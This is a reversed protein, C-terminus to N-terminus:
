QQFLRTREGEDLISEFWEVSHHVHYSIRTYIGPYGPRGCGYGSSVLGVVGIRGSDRIWLPAGADGMCADKGGGRVAACIQGDRIDDYSRRCERNSVVRLQVGRLVDSLDGDESTTGWGAVMVPSRPKLHDSNYKPIIPQVSHTFEAPHCLELIAIDNDFGSQGPYDPHVHIHCVKIHQEGYEDITVDHDGLVAEIDQRDVVCQAATLIFRELVLAGACFPHDGDRTWLGVVFPFENPRAEFGGMIRDQDQEEEKATGDELTACSILQFTALALVLLLSMSLNERSAIMKTISSSSGM